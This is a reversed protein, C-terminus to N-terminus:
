KRWSTLKHGILAYYLIFGYCPLLLLYAQQANGTFEAFVGYVLPLLAGGSIGMILLAAGTQTKSGLNALAMPWITPWVLANSLGLLAVFLVTDPFSNDALWFLLINSLATQKHRCFYYRTFIRLWEISFYCPKNSLLARFLCIRICGCRLVRHRPSNLM